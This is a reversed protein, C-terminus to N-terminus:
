GHYPFHRYQRSIQDLMMRAKELQKAQVNAEAESPEGVFGRRLLQEPLFENLMILCWKLGFLPYVVEVRRVLDRIDKFRDFINDAFRRKLNEKIGSAPHLLFDSIMKAPDDWGFYEFDLFVVQSDERRLANHFGFDSPSLTRCDEPLVAGYDSGAAAIAGKSWDSIEFFTPKFDSTLYEHLAPHRVPISDLSLLRDLRLQINEVISQVSFCAEAALPLTGSRPRNGLERLTGLFGAASDVDSEMVQKPHIKDGEIYEYLGCDNPRDAAVPMPIVRVGNEWMFELGSYEADLRRKDDAPHHFYFKAAYASSDPCTVRYVKSNRGGSIRELKTVPQHLINSVITATAADQPDSSETAVAHSSRSGNSQVM